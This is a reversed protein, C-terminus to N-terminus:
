KLVRFTLGDFEDFNNMEEFDADATVLEDCGTGQALLAHIVDVTGAGRFRSNGIHQLKGTVCDLIELADTMIYTANMGKGEKMFEINPMQMLKGSLEDYMLNSQHLINGSNSM